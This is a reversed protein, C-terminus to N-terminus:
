TNTNLKILSHATIGHSELTAIARRIATKSLYDKNKLSQRVKESNEEGILSALLRAKETIPKKSSNNDFKFFADLHDIIGLEHCICLKHPLNILKENPLGAKISSKMDKLREIIQFLVKGRILKSDIAITSKGLETDPFKITSLYIDHSIFDLDSFLNPEFIIELNDHHKIENQYQNLFYDILLELNQHTDLISIKEKFIQWHWELNIEVLRKFAKAKAQEVLHRDSSKLPTDGEWSYGWHLSPEEEGNIWDSYTYNKM